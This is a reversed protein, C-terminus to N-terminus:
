SILWNIIPRHIKYRLTGIYFISNYNTESSDLRTGLLTKTIVEWFDDLRFHQITIHDPIVRSDTVTFDLWCEQAFPFDCYFKLSGNNDELNYVNNYYIKNEDRLTVTVPIITAGEKKYFVEINM